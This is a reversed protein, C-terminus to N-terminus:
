VEGFSVKNSIIHKEQNEKILQNISKNINLLHDIKYNIEAKKEDKEKLNFKSNIEENIKKVFNDIFDKTNKIHNDQCGNITDEIFKNVKSLKIKLVVIAAATLIGGSIDVIPLTSSYVLFLGLLGSITEFFAKTDIKDFSNSNNELKDCGINKYSDSIKIKLEEEIKIKQEEFQNTFKNILYNKCEDFKFNLKQILEDSNKQNIKKNSDSIIPQILINNLSYLDNIELIIAKIDNNNKFSKKVENILNESNETFKRKIIEIYKSDNEIKLIDNENKMQLQKILKEIEHNIKIVKNFIEINKIKISDPSIIEQIFEKIEKFGSSIENNIRDSNYEKSSIAFINAVINKQRLLVETTIKVTKLQEEDELLDKQSIVVALGKKQQINISQYRDIINTLQSNKSLTMFFIIDSKVLYSDTIENCAPNVDWGPTDVIIINKLIDNNIYTESIGNPNHVTKIESDSHKIEQIIPAGPKIDVKCIKEGLLANIFSSKGSNYLGAVVICYERNLRIKLGKLDSDLNDIHNLDLYYELNPFNEKIEEINEFLKDIIKDIDIKLLENEPTMFQENM